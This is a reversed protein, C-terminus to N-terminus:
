AAALADIMAAIFTTYEDDTMEKINKGPVKGQQALTKWLANVNGTTVGYKGALTGYFKLREDAPIHSLESIAKQAEPARMTVAGHTGPRNVTPPLPQPAPAPEPEPQQKVSPFHYVPKKTERDAVVLASIRKSEDYEIRQVYFKQYENALKYRVGDQKVPVKLFIDPATYLERGIGWKFGARKFADSAEGKKENGEGDQRSETGCDQKNVWRGDVLVSLTCYLNGKIEEYKCEWNEPGVVKDLMDMDTRATKYLLAIAGSRTVRKVKVEIDDASLLPFQVAM